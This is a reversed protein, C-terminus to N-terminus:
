RVGSRFAMQRARLRTDLRTTTGTVNQTTNTVLSEGPYNRTKLVFNITQNAGGSGTFKVDPIVRSISSFYEGEQIDLDSSEIFVNSMASGDDDNGQEHQYLYNPQIAKAQPEPTRLLVKM